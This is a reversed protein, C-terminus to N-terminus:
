LLCLVDLRVEIPSSFTGAPCAMRLTEFVDQGRPLTLSGLHGGAIATNLENLLDVVTRDTGMTAASAIKFTVDLVAVQVGHFETFLITGSLAIARSKHWRVQEGVQVAGGNAYSPFYTTINGSHAMAEITALLLATSKGKAVGTLTFSVVTSGAYVGGMVVRAIEVGLMAAMTESFEAKFVPLNQIQEYAQGLTLLCETSGGSATGDGNEAEEPVSLDTVEVYTRLLSLASSVETEVLRKFQAVAAQEGRVVGAPAEIKLTIYPEPAEARSGASGTVVLACGEAGYAVGVFGQMCPACEFGGDLNICRSFKSCCDRHCLM